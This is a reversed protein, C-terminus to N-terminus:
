YFTHGHKYWPETINSIPNVNSASDRKKKQLRSLTSCPINLNEALNTLNLNNYTKYILQINHNFALLLQKKSMFRSM